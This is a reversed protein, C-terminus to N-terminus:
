IYAGMYYRKGALWSLWLFILESTEKAKKYLYPDGSPLGKPRGLEAILPVTKVSMQGQMLKKKLSKTDFHRLLYRHEQSYFFLFQSLDVDLHGNLAKFLFTVDVVFRTKKQTRL